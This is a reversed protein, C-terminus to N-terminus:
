CTCQACASVDIVGCPEALLMCEGGLSSSCACVMLKELGTARGELHPCPLPGRGPMHEPMCMSCTAAKVLVVDCMSCPSMCLVRTCHVRTHPSPPIMRYLTTDHGGDCTDPAHIAFEAQPIHCTHECAYAGHLIPCWTQMRRSAAGPTGHAWLHESVMSVPISAARVWHCSM